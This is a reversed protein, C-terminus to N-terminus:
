ALKYILTGIALLISRFPPYVGTVTKHVKCFGDLIGPRSGIVKIKKYQDTTM